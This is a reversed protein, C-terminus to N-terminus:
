GNKAPENQQVADNGAPHQPQDPKPIPDLQATATDPPPVQQATEGTVAKEETPPSRVDEVAGILKAALQAVEEPSIQGFGPMASPDNFDWGNEVLGVFDRIAPDSTWVRRLAARALDAPVEPRLFSTVDTTADISDLSPLTTLDFAHDDAPKTVDTRTRPAAVDDDAAAGGSDATECQDVPQARSALKRQSWRTLFDEPESM